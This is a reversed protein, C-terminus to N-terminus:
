HQKLSYLAKFIGVLVGIISLVAAIAKANDFVFNCVMVRHWRDARCYEIGILIEFFRGGPAIQQALRNFFELIQKDSLEGYIIGKLRLKYVDEERDMLMALVAVYSCVISADGINQSHLLVTCVEFAVMNALWSARTRDLYQPSLLLKDFLLGKKIEMDFKDTYHRELKIYVSELELASITGWKQNFYRNSPKVLVGKKFHLLLGLLHPPRESPAINTSDFVDFAEHGMSSGMETIFVDVDVDTATMLAEIVLWPLQNELLMIDNNICGQNSLFFRRLPTADEKERKKSKMYQLMFCADHFMMDAFEDPKIGSVADAAYLRRVKDAVAFVRGYLEKYSHGSDRTFTYAAVREAKEMGELHPSSGYDMGALIKKKMELTEAEFEEVLIRVADPMGGDERYEEMTNDSQRHSSSSNDSLDAMEEM